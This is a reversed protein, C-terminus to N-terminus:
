PDSTPTMQMADVDDTAAITDDTPVLAEFELANVQEAFSFGFDKFEDGRVTQQGWQHLELLM